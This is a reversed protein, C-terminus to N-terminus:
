SQYPGDSVVVTMVLYGIGTLIQGIILSRGSMTKRQHYCFWGQVLIGGAVYATALPRPWYPYWYIMSAGTLMPYLSVYLLSFVFGVLLAIETRMELHGM